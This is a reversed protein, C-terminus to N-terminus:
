HKSHLSLGEAAWAPHSSGAEWKAHLPGALAVFKNPHLLYVQLLIGAHDHRLAQFPNDPSEM